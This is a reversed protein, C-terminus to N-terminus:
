MHSDMKYSVILEPLCRLLSPPRSHQKTTLVIRDLNRGMLSHKGKAWVVSKDFGFLLLNGLTVNIKKKTKDVVDAANETTFLSRVSSKNGSIAQIYIMESSFILHSIDQKWCKFTKSRHKGRFVINWTFIWPQNTVLAFRARQRQRLCYSQYWDCAPGFQFLPCVNGLRGQYRLPRPWSSNSSITLMISVYHFTVRFKREGSAFSESRFRHWVRNSCFKM